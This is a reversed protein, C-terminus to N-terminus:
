PRPFSACLAHRVDSCGYISPFWFLNPQSRGIFGHNSIMGWTRLPGAFWPKFDLRSVPFTWHRADREWVRPERAGLIEERGSTSSLIAGLRVQVQVGLSVNTYGGRPPLSSYHSSRVVWRLLTRVVVFFLYYRFRRVVFLSRQERYSASTPLAYDQLGSTTLDQDDSCWTFM